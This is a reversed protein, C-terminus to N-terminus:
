CRVVKDVQELLQSISTTNKMRRDINCGLWAWESEHVNHAKLNAIALKNGAAAHIGDEFWSPETREVCWIEAGADRLLQIENPFRCDSIVIDENSNTVRRILSHVWINDNFSKRAVETGWVQLISRPSVEHGLRESWWTDTAERWARDTRGIGELRHRDWGFIASVADKLPTAFSEKVFQHENVLYDAITDKGSGIFGCLGIIKQKKM